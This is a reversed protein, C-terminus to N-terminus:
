HSGGTTLVEDVKESFMVYVTIMDLRLVIAQAPGQSVQM